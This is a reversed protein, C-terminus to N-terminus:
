QGPIRLIEGDEERNLQRRVSAARNVVFRHIQHPQKKANSMERSDRSGQLWNTSIAIDFRKVRFDSEAAVASRIAKGVEEMRAVIREPIFITDLFEVMRARYLDKFEQVNLIRDIFKNEYTTPVWISARERKDANGIM